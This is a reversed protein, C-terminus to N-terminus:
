RSYMQAPLFTAIEPFAILLLVTVVMLLFFPLAGRAIYFIDRGTLGQMVFLNFGVPPTIVSMEVVVVLYIGFWIQDIGAASVLPMIVSTTLVIVSIGDLFCGLAIFLLMKAILLATPSLGMTGVGEALLRPIGTFGMATSLFTSAALIFCIMCNTKTAALLSEKFSRMSLTGTVAALVLAGVVGVAAAETATAVGGYISGIVGVILLVVPILQGSNRVKEVFNMRIDSPPTREPWILGHAMIYGMFLGMMLLGPLVGAIFLRAISVDAAVGYVIMIISPPIMLGLAGSSTLSGITLLEDYGRRKLEPLSMRGITVCTATSSGSVAAFIGCGLVNTHVLRGPLRGLWPALGSFMNASLKTRFLIEGMWIFLPLATLAFSSHMEALKGAMILGVPTNTFALMAVGGVILLALAVWIGIALAILLIIALAIGVTVPDM